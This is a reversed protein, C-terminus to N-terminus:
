KVSPEVETFKFTNSLEVMNELEYGEIYSKISYFVTDRVM